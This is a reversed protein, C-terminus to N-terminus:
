TPGPLAAQLAKDHKYLWDVALELTRRAYFCSARADTRMGEKTTAEFLLPWESQLFSFNSM